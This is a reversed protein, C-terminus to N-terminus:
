DLTPSRKTWLRPDTDARVLELGRAELLDQFGPDEHHMPNALNVVFPSSEVLTGGVALAAVIRDLTSPLDPIHEFVDFACIVTYAEEELPAWWDLVRVSDELRHRDVRFRMFDKQLSSLELYDVRFGHAALALSLNGTGGGFDLVRSAPPTLSAVDEVLQPSEHVHVANAFLYTRSSLYFWADERLEPALALWEVRFNEHRRSVLSVVQERSLSTYQVLDDVVDFRREGVELPVPLDIRERRHPYLMLRAAQRALWEGAASATEDAATAVHAPAMRVSTQLRRLRRQVPLPLRRAVPALFGLM